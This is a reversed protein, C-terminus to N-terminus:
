PKIAHGSLWKSWVTSEKVVKSLYLQCVPIYVYKLHVIQPTKVCTHMWSVIFIIFVGMMELFKRTGRYDTGGKGMGQCGSSSQWESNTQM